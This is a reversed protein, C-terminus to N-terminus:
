HDGHLDAMGENRRRRDEEKRQEKEQWVDEQNVTGSCDCTLYLM